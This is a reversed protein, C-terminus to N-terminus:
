FHGDRARLKTCNRTKLLIQPAGDGQLHLHSKLSSGRQQGAVSAVSAYMSARPIRHVDSCLAALPNSKTEGDM